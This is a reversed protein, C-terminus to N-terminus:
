DYGAGSEGLRFKLGGAQLNNFKIRNETCSRLIYPDEEPTDINKKLAM